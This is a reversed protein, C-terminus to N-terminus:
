WLATGFRSIPVLEFKPVIDKPDLGPVDARVILNGDKM